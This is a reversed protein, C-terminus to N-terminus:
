RFLPQFGVKTVVAGLQRRDSNTPDVENPSFTPSVAFEMRWPANPPTLVAAPATTCDKVFFTQRDTVHKIAPQKDPGITVPGIRVTV